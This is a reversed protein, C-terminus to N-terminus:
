GAREVRTRRQQLLRMRALLNSLAYEAGERYKPDGPMGALEDRLIGIENRLEKDGIPALEMRAILVDAEEATLVVGGTPGGEPRYPRGVLLKSCRQAAENALRNRLALQERIAAIREAERAAVAEPDHQTCYLMGDRKVVGRRECGGYGTQRRWVNMTCREEPPPLKM